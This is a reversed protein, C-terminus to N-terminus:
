CAHMSDSVYVWRICYEICGTGVKLDQVPDSIAILKQGTVIGAEAAPSYPKVEL